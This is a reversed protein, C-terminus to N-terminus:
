HDLLKLAHVIKELAPVELALDDDQADAPVQAELQAQTVQNLHHGLTSQGQGVCRDHAPYLPEHGLELPAPISESALGTARPADIFGVHLDPAIPGIEIAGDISLALCNIEPQAGVAIHLRGLREEALRQLSLPSSRDADGQVTVRGRM